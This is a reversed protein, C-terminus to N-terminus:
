LTRVTYVIGGAAMGASVGVMGGFMVNAMGELGGGGTAAGVVTGILFGPLIGWSAYEFFGYLNWGEARLEAGSENAAALTARAQSPGVLLRPDIRAQMAIGQVGAQSAQQGVAREPRLSAALVCPSSMWMTPAALEAPWAAIKKEFWARLTVM